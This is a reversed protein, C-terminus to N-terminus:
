SAAGPTADAPMAGGILWQVLESVRNALEMHGGTMRVTAAGPVNASLWEGHAAPVLTDEVGFWVMTPVQLASLDFGWPQVFALDDDVWGDVGTRYAEQMSRKIRTQFAPRSMIERDGDSLKYDEGLATSPDVLLKPLEEAALRQLHPRLTTEGELSWTFEDVNGQTMGALWDAQELGEDGFPAVGVVCGARSVREPMLTAVALCHPGGGSGGTVSFRDIGLHDVIAKVDAAAAAVARGPQRTSRGYGARDFNIARVGLREYLDPEDPPPGGYRSGPTGHIGVIPFGDSPGYEAVGITRGDSATVTYERASQDPDDAGGSVWPGPTQLNSM